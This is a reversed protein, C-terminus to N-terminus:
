WDMWLNRYISTLQKVIQPWAFGEARQRAAERKAHLKVPEELLRCVAEAMAKSDGSAVFEASLEDAYDRIDGVDTVVVPTGCAMGELVTNNAVCDKLPQLLLSARRYLDRLAEDSLRSHVTTSPLQEFEARRSPLTVVDFHVQRGTKSANIRQIIENVMQFDRLHAGVFICHYMSDADAAQPGPCFFDTDIGHPVFHVKHLPMWQALWAAQKRGLAIIADLDALWHPQPM